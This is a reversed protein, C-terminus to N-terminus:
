SHILQVENRRQDESQRKAPAFKNSVRYGRRDRAALDSANLRDRNYGQISGLQALWAPRRDSRADSLEVRIQGLELLRRDLLNLTAGLQLGIHVGINGAVL